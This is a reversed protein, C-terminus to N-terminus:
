KENHLSNATRYLLYNFRLIFIVLITFMNYMMITLFGTGYVFLFCMLLVLYNIVVAWMLSSLRLNAIYEDENKEKSFAVLLAGTIFATGTITRPIDTRIFGFWVDDELLGGSYVAFVPMKLLVSDLYGTTLLLGFISSPILIIWGIRKFNNPLLLSAAM